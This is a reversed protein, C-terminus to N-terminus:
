QRQDRGLVAVGLVIVLVGLAKFPNMSEHLILVSLMTVWVYTLSIVPYLISLEGSRLALVLLITSLGYLAYGALLPLNTLMSWLSTGALSNAGSKILMQAAAGFLTCCFVLLISKRRAAPATAVTDPITAAVSM